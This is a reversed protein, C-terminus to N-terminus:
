KNKMKYFFLVTFATNWENYKEDKGLKKSFEEKTLLEGPNEPQCENDKSFTGNRFMPHISLCSKLGHDVEYAEYIFDVTEKVIQEEM